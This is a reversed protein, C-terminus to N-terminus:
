SECLESVMGVKPEATHSLEGPEGDSIATSSVQSVDRLPNDHIAGEEESSVERSQIHHPQGDEEKPAKRPMPREPLQLLPLLLSIKPVGEQSTAPGKERSLQTRGDRSVVSPIRAISWAQPM